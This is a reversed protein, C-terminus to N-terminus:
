FMLGNAEIRKLDGASHRQGSREVVGPGRLLVEAVGDDGALRDIDEARVAARDHDHGGVQHGAVQDLHGVVAALHEAVGDQELTLGDHVLGHQRPLAHRDRLGAARLLFGDVRAPLVLLVGELAARPDNLGPAVHSSSRSRCYRKGCHKRRPLM